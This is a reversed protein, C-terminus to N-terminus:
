MKEVKEDIKQFWKMMFDLGFGMLIALILGTIIFDFVMDKKRITMWIIEILIFFLFYVISSHIQFKPFKAYFWIYFICLIISPVVFVSLYLYVYGYFIISIGEGFIIMLQVLLFIFSYFIVAFYKLIGM